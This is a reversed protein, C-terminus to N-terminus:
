TKYVLLTQFVREYFLILVRQQCLFWHCETPHFTDSTGQSTVTQCQSSITLGIQIANSSKYHLTQDTNVGLTALCELNEQSLLKSHYLFLKINIKIANPM